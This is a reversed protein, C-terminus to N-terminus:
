RGVTALKLKDDGGEGLIVGPLDSVVGAMSADYPEGSAVVHNTRNTDLGRSDWNLAEAGIAGV